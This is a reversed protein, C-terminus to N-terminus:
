LEAPHSEALKRTKGLKYRTGRGRGVMQLQGQEALKKLLYVAQNESLDWLEVVERRSISGRTGVYYLIATEPDPPTPKPASTKAHLEPHLRYAQGNARLLGFAALNEL